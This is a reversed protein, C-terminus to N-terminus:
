ARDDSRLGMNQAAIEAARRRASEVAAALALKQTDSFGGGQERGKIRLAAAASYDFMHVTGDDCGAFIRGEDRVAACASKRLRHSHISGFTRTDSLRVIGDDAATLMTDGRVSVTNVCDAHSMKKEFRGCRLDCWVIWGNACGAVLGQEEPLLQLCRVGQCAAPLTFRDLLAATELDWVRLQSLSYTNGAALRQGARHLSSCVGLPPEDDDYTQLIRNDRWDRTHIPTPGEGGCTLLHADIQVSCADIPWRRLLRGALPPPRTGRVHGDGDGSGGAESSGGGESPGSGSRGTVSWICCTGDASCSALLSSDEDDGEAAELEPVRGIEDHWGHWADCSAAHFVQDTHGTLTCSGRPVFSRTRQSSQVRADAEARLHGGEVDTIRLTHDSSCSVLRKRHIHLAMIHDTHLYLTDELCEGRRWRSALAIHEMHM